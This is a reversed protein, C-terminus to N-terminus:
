NTIAKSKIQMAIWDAMAQYLKMEDAMQNKLLYCDVTGSIRLENGKVINKNSLELEVEEDSLNRTAAGITNLLAMVDAGTKRKGKPYKLEVWLELNGDYIDKLDLNEGPFLTDLITRAKEGLAWARQSKKPKSSPSNDTGPAQVMLPQGIAISKVGHALIKEKTVQQAVNSLMFADTVAMETTKEKILWNLHAEIASHHLSGHLVLAVHDRHIAFYIVGPVYQQAAGGKKVPAPPAIANLKLIPQTRDDEVSPQHAGPAWSTLYGCLCGSVIKSHGIARFETSQVNLPQVRDSALPLKNLATTVMDQLTRSQKPTATFKRYLITKKLPPVTAM